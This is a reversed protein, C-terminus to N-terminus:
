ENYDTKKKNLFCDAGLTREFNDGKPLVENSKLSCGKLIASVFKDWDERREGVDPARAM